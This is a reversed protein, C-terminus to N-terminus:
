NYHKAKILDSAKEAIALVSIEIKGSVINPMVSADVVRLNNVGKVLLESDVVSGMSCTGSPHFLTVALNRSYCKWYDETGYEFDVCNQLTPVLLSANVSQFLPSNQIELVDKLYSIFRDLDSDVSFYGMNIIPSDSPNRSNLTINGRSAPNFLGPLILYIEQGEAAEYLEDCLEPNYAFSQACLQNWKNQSQVVLSLMHYDPFDQSKNLAPYGVINPCPFETPNSVSSVDVLKGVKFTLPASVHDQLNKGVPLDSVVPINLSELHDKPGVGSMMLLKPSNISGASIIVEKKAYVDIETGDSKLITVGTATNNDDFLVKTVLAEKLFNLNSRTEQLQGLYTYASSQRVNDAVTLLFESYALEPGVSDLAVNRGIDAFAKLYKQAAQHSEINTGVKGHLGHNDKYSSMLLAPDRLHEVKLIYKYMNNYNWSEDGSAKAWKNYDHPFGRSYITHSLAGSGGIMKGSTLSQVGNRHAQGTHGDPKSTFNWDYKSFALLPFLGVYQFFYLLVFIRNFVLLVSYM